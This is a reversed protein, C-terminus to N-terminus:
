GLDVPQGREASEYVADIVRMVETSETRGVRPTTGSEVCDAFHEVELRYDDVTEFTETVERGDVAYTLTPRESPGITFAPEVRLWGDTTQVRYYQTKPTDFSSEVRAAHDGDYELVGVMRTDVGSDRTDETTAYVRDPAGLFLRTASIAYCGVDMVSGGALDPDLRIDTGGEPIRFSFAATVSVVDGLETEVVERARETRPSFRYMFAEMLVVDRTECYDFVAETETASGTLPKECLVHLGEDAARRIWEAHLSNPLPIYVADLDDDALLDEYSGYAREIGLREAVATARTEDRSAIATVEHDSARVAPIVSEVGIDATSLVGFRM